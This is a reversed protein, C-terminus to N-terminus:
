GRVIEVSMRRVITLLQVQHEPKHAKIRIGRRALRALALNQFLGAMGQGLCAHPGYGFGCEAGRPPSFGVFREPRFEHADPGWVTALRHTIHPSVIVRSGSPLIWEGIAVDEHFYRENLHTPTFLRRLERTVLQTYALRQVDDGTPEEPMGQAEEAVRAWVDVRGSLLHWGTLTSSMTADFAAIFIAVLLDRTLLRSLGHKAMLGLISPPAGNEPGREILDEVASRIVALDEDFRRNERWYLGSMKTFPWVGPRIIRNFITGLSRQYADSLRLFQEAGSMGFIISGFVKLLTASVLPVVNDIVGGRKVVHEFEDALWDVGKAMQPVMKKVVGYGVVKSFFGRLELNDAGEAAGLTDGIFKRIEHRTRPGREGRPHSLAAYTEAPGFFIFTPGPTDPDSEWLKFSLGSRAVYEVYRRPSLMFGLMSVLSPAHFAPPICTAM